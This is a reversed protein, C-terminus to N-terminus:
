FIYICSAGLIFNKQLKEHKVETDGPSNQFVVKLCGTVEKWIRIWEGNMAM